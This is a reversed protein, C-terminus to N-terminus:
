QAKKEGSGGDRSKEPVYQIQYRSCVKQEDPSQNHSVCCERMQVFDKINETIQNKVSEVEESSPSIRNANSDVFPLSYMVKIDDGDIIATFPRKTGSDATPDGKSKISISRVSSNEEPNSVRFVLEDKPSALVGDSTCQGTFETFRLKKLLGTTQGCTLDNSLLSQQDPLEAALFKKMEDNTELSSCDSVISAIYRSAGASSQAGVERRSLIIESNAMKANLFAGIAGGAQSAASSEKESNFSFLDECTKLSNGCQCAVSNKLEVLDNDKLGCSAFSAPGYFVQAILFLIVVM